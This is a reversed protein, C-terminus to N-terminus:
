CPTRGSAAPWGNINGFCASRGFGVKAYAAIARANEVVPDMTLRHHGRERDFGPWWRAVEPETVISTLADADAPTPTRLTVDQGEIRM